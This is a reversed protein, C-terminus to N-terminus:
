APTMSTMLDSGDCYVGRGNASAISNVIRTVESGVRKRRNSQEEGSDLCIKCVRGLSYLKMLILGVFLLGVFLSM